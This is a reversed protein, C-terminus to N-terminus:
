APHRSETMEKHGDEYTIVYKQIVWLKGNEFLNFPDGYEDQSVITESPSLTRKEYYKKGVTM